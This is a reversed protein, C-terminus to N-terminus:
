RGLPFRLIFTTGVGVESECRIEAGMRDMYEKVIALGLGTSPEGGTPRARLKQFRGFLKPLEEASIGPGEDRIRFEVLNAGGIISLHVKRGPISFKIANSILNELVEGVIERSQLIRGEDMQHFVIGIGKLTATPEFQDCASLVQNRLSFISSPAPTQQSKDLQNLALIRDITHFLRYIPKEMTTLLQNAQPSIEQELEEELQARLAQLQTVPTRLDHTMIGILRTQESKTEQLADNKQNLIRNNKRNRLYMFFLHIAILLLAILAITSGKIRLQAHSLAEMNEQAQEQEERLREQQMRLLELTNVEARKQRTMVSDQLKKYQLLYALAEENDGRAHALDSLIGLGFVVSSDVPLRTVMGVLAKSYHVLANTDGNRQAWKALVHCAAAKGQWYEDTEALAMSEEAYQKALDHYGHAELIRAWHAYSNQLYPAADHEKRLTECSRFYSQALEMSDQAASIEALNLLTGAFAKDLRMERQIERAQWFYQKASEYLKAQLFLAGLNSYITVMQLQHNGKDAAHLIDEAQTLYRFAQVLENEQKYILGINILPSVISVSDGLSTKLELSKRYAEKANPLDGMTFFVNGLNTHTRAMGATDAMDRYKQLSQDYYGLAEQFKGTRYAVIGQNLLIKALLTGDPFEESAEIARLFTISASDYEARISYGIGLCLYAESLLVQNEGGQLLQIAQNAYYQSRYVSDMYIAKSRSLLEEAETIQHSNQAVTGSLCSLFILVLFGTNRFALFPSHM